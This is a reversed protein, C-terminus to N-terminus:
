APGDSATLRWCPMFNRDDLAIEDAAGADIAEAGQRLREDCAGVRCLHRPACRFLIHRDGAVDTDIQFADLM